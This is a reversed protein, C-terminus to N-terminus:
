RRMMLSLDRVNDKASLVRVMCSFCEADAKQPLLTALTAVYVPERCNSIYDLLSAVRGIDEWHDGLECLEMCERIEGEIFNRLRGDNKGKYKFPVKVVSYPYKVGLVKCARCIMYESYLKALKVRYKNPPILDSLVSLDMETLKRLNKRIKSGLKIVGGSPCLGEQLKRAASRTDGRLVFVLFDLFAAREEGVEDNRSLKSINIHKNRIIALVIGRLKADGKLWHTLENIIFDPRILPDQVLLKSPEIGIRNLLGKLKGVRPIPAYYYFSDM